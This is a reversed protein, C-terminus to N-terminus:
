VVEKILANLIKIKEEKNISDGYENLVDELSSLLTEALPSLPVNSEIVDNNNNYNELYKVFEILTEKYLEDKQVNFNTLNSKTIVIALQKIVINDDHNAKNLTEYIQNYKNPLVINNLNNMSLLNIFGNKIDDTTKFTKKTFDILNNYYNDAKRTMSQRIDLIIKPLNNINNKFLAPLEEFLVTFSNLDNNRILEKYKLEIDSLEILNDRTTTQSIIQDFSYFDNRLYEILNKVMEALNDSKKIELYTCLSGIANYSDKTYKLFSLEYKDDTLALDINATNVPIELNKNFLVVARDSTNINAIVKAIFLPMIGRRMGYPKSKLYNYIDHVKIRNNVQNNFIYATIETIINANIELSKELSKFITMEPSTDSYNNNNNIGLIIDGVSNRSRKSTSSINNKNVQENVFIVTKDYTESFSSYINDSLSGDVKTNSILIPKSYICELYKNIDSTLDMYYLKLTEKEVENLHKDELLCNISLARRGKEIINDAIEKNILRIILNSCNFNSLKVSIDDSTYKNDNILNILVGDGNNYNELSSIDKLEMFKSARFYIMTFYRIMEFEYNYRNSIFYKHTDVNFLLEELKTSLFKNNAIQEIKTNLNEDIIMSFDINNTISDQKFYNNTILIAVIKSVVVEDLNLALSINKISAPFKNEDNIIKFIALAKIIKKYEEEKVVNNIAEVKQGLAKYNEDNKIIDAFYDYIYDVNLLGKSNHNVFHKFTKESTDTLFTFLTRENQGLLESINVLAYVSLPNFPFANELIDTINKESLVSTEILKEKFDTNVKIFKGVLDVYGDKKNLADCLIEYNEELSRNFKITKFRGAIKAFSNISEKKKSYLVFDKHTICCLHMQELQSSSNCKEALNQLKNLKTNFDVDQNELFLGFEDYIIFLGSYGYKKIKNAVDAYLAAIDNSIYSMFSAGHSVDKFIKRFTQLANAKYEKLEKELNHITTNYEKFYLDLNFDSKSNEKKWKKIINLADDFTSDPMLKDLKADKLSNFLSIMFSNNFDDTSNNNIIIPLLSLNESDIKILMNALNSNIKKIKDVVINFLAKNERKGLLYTIMLMLYSKGKGYPGVLLTSRLNKNNLASSIYYELVDCLDSTPIYEKIKEENKLDYELNVSSKFKKNVDIYRSYM